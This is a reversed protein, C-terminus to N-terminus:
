VKGFFVFWLLRNGLEWALKKDLIMRNENTGLWVSPTVNSSEQLSCDIGYKDKFDIRTFGRQTKYRKVKM